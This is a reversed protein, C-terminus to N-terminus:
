AVKAFVESVKVGSASWAPIIGGLFATVVGLSAGWWLAHKTIFFANFFAIPLKIGGIVWNVLGFVALSGLIGGVLGIMMAEGLVLVLIQRPQYGLVKLVAMERVRERVTIGIANAVIVTMVIGIAPVLVYKVGWLLNKFPELFRTVASSGTESKIEEINSEITSGVEAASKQDGAKIWGLNVRGDMVSKEDQLFRDAYAYDMFAMETWRSQAPLTGVIEFQVKIPQGASKTSRQSFCQAEFVDGVKKGIKKLRDQGVLLGQHEKHSIPPEVMRKWANDDLDEMSDIMSKIKEPYTAITFFELNRDKLEPDLTFGLFVWVNNQESQFGQIARLRTNLEGQQVIREMHSRSFQSPIRYRDTIVLAVDSEQATMARELFLIVSGIMSVLMVLMLVATSTLLTRLANRSLNKVILLFFKM